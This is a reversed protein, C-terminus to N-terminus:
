LALEREAYADEVTEGDEGKLYLVSAKGANKLPVSRARGAGAGSLRQIVNRYVIRGSADTSAERLISCKFSRGKRNRLRVVFRLNASDAPACGIYAKFDKEYRYLDCLYHWAIEQPLFGFMHCFREDGDLLRGHGNVECVATDKDQIENEMM